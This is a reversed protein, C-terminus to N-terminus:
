EAYMLYALAGVAAAATIRLRGFKGARIVFEYGLLFDYIFNNTPQILQADGVRVAAITGEASAAYGTLTTSGVQCQSASGGPNNISILGSAVHATVTAAVDAEIVECEISVGAASGDFSVGWGVIAVDKSTPPVLQIHSKIATGTTLKAQAATTPMPGNWVKYVNVAM